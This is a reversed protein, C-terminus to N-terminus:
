KFPKLAEPATALKFEVFFRADKRGQIPFSLLVTVESASKGVTLRTTETTKAVVVPPNADPLPLFLEPNSVSQLAFGEAISIKEKGSGKTRGPDWVIWWAGKQAPPEVFDVASNLYGLMVPAKRERALSKMRTADTFELTNRCVVGVHHARAPLQREPDWGGAVLATLRSPDDVALEPRGSKEDKLAAGVSELNAALRTGGAVTQIFDRGRAKSLATRFGVMEASAKIMPIRTTTLTVLEPAKAMGGRLVVLNPSFPEKGDKASPVKNEQWGPYPTFASSTMEAANGILDNIGLVSRGQPFTGVPTLQSDPDRLPHAAASQNNAFARKLDYQDGWTWWRASTDGPRRFRAAAEWEFETPLRKGCWELYALVEDFTVYTVPLNEMGEPVLSEAGAKPAAEATTAGNPASIAQSKKEREKERQRKKDVWYKPPKRGTDRVFEAWFRNPVENVDLYFDEITVEHAPWGIWYKDINGQGASFRLEKRIAEFETADNGIRYKGGPVLVMAPPIGLTRAREGAKVDDIQQNLGALESKLALLGKEFTPILKKYNTEFDPGDFILDITENVVMAYDVPADGRLLSILSSSLEGDLVTSLNRGVTAAIAGRCDEQIATRLAEPVAPHSDAGGQGSPAVLAPRHKAGIQSLKGALAAKTEARQLATFEVQLSEKKRQVRETEEAIRTEVKKIEAEIAKPDQAQVSLGIVMAALFGSLARRPVNVM